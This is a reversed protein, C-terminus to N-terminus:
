GSYPVLTEGLYQQAHFIIPISIQSDEVEGLKTDTDNNAENNVWQITVRLTRADDLSALDIIGSYLYEGTRVVTSGDMDQLSININTGLDLEGLNLDVSYLVAVDCDSADVVLEFYATGGPAIYGTQVHSSTSYQFNNIEIAETMTDTIDLKVLIHSITIDGYVNTDYYKKIEDDTILTKVYDKTAQTRKYSIILTEKFEDISSYGANQLASLLESESNNYMIKYIKIQNEAYEKAEDDTKYENNLIKTDITQIIYNTAYKDKLTQYLDDVTINYEMKSLSVVNKDSDSPTTENKCGTLLIIFALFVMFKIIKKM